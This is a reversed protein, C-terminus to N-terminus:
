QEAFRQRTLLQALRQAGPYLLQASILPPSNQFDQATIVLEYPKLSGSSRSLGRRKSDNPTRSFTLAILNFAERRRRPGGPLKFFRSDM